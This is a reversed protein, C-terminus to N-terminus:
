VYRTGFKRGGLKRKLSVWHIVGNKDDLRSVGVEVLPLPVRPEAETPTSDVSSEINLKLQVLESTRGWELSDM